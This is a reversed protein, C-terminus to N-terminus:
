EIMVHNRLAVNGVVERMREARISFLFTEFAAIGLALNTLSIETDQHDIRWEDLALISEAVPDQDELLTNLVEVKNEPERYADLYTVSVLPRSKKKRQLTLKYNGYKKGLDKMERVSRDFAWRATDNDLDPADRLVHRLVLLRNSLIAPEPMLLSGNDIGWFHPAKKEAKAMLKDLGAGDLVTLDPGYEIYPEDPGFDLIAPEGM